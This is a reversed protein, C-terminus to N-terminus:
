ESLPLIVKILSEDPANSDSLGKELELGDLLTRARLTRQTLSYGAGKRFSQINKLRFDRRIETKKHMQASLASCIAILATRGSGNKISPLPRICRCRHTPIARGTAQIPM